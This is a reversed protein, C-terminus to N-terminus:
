CMDCPFALIIQGAPKKWLHIGSSQQCFDTVARRLAQGDVWFTSIQSAHLEISYIWAELGEASITFGQSQWGERTLQDLQTTNQSVYPFDAYYWTLQALGEAALRVLQHDVHNGLALPCILVASTPVALRLEEQLHDLSQRDGPHIPGNLAMESAYMHKHTQPDLRYICDPLSFYHQKAGLFQCSRTDEEKRHIYAHKDFNWRDHLSQAFPSFDGPPPEGACITWISVQDGQRAQEWVLGGCSLAVDDFHPSLYIWQM